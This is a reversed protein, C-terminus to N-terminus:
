RAAGRRRRAVVVGTGLAALAAGGALMGEDPGAQTSGSGTGAGGAPMLRLVGCLAPSTAALPLSPVLESKETAAAPPATAPDLGHIVIVAIGSHISALTASDLNITRDYTYASGSPAIKVNTGSAPSTDGSTSLTTQIMGYSAMGEATSLVGDHNADAAATPCTGMAGGHIHQVHPYPANMFTAALGSAQEHITATAGNLTLSLTASASNQGNLPVPTLTAQYTATGGSSGSSDALATAPALVQAGLLALPILAKTTRAMM